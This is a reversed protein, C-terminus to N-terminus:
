CIPPHMETLSGHHISAAVDRLYVSLSFYNTLLYLFLNARFLPNRIRGKRYASKHVLCFASAGFFCKFYRTWWNWFMAM